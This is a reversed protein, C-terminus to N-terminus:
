LFALNFARLDVFHNVTIEYSAETRTASMLESTKRRKWTFSNFVYRIVHHSNDMVVLVITHSISAESQISARLNQILWYECLEMWLKLTHMNLIEFSKIIRVCKLCNLDIWFIKMSNLFLPLNFSYNVWFHFITM